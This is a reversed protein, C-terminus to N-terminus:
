HKKRRPERELGVQHERQEMRRGEVSEESPRIGSTGRRGLLYMAVGFALMVLGWWLNINIGLSRQYITKDSVLGYVALLAGLLAFMVGIPLRIDLRMSLEKFLFDNIL